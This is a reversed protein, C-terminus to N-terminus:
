DELAVTASSSDDAKKKRRKTPGEVADTDSYQESSETGSTSEVVFSDDDSEDETEELDDVSAELPKRTSTSATDTVFKQFKFRAYYPVNKIDGGYEKEFFRRDAKDEAEHVGLKKRPARKTPAKAQSTSAVAMTTTSTSAIAENMTSTSAFQTAMEVAMRTAISIAMAQVAENGADLKRKTLSTTFSVPATLNVQPATVVQSTTATVASKPASAVATSASTTAKQVQVVEKKEKDDPADAHVFPTPGGNAAILEAVPLGPHNDPAQIMAKYVDQEPVTGILKKFVKSLVRTDGAATHAGDEPIDWGYRMAQLTRPKPIGMVNCQAVVLTCRFIWDSPITLGTRDTELKLMAKDFRVNHAILLIIPKVSTTVGNKIVKVPQEVWQVFQQFVPRFTPKGKVMNDDIHNIATAGPPIPMEPDILTGFEEDRDPDYAGFEVVRPPPIAELLGTTETDFFIVRIVNDIKAATTAVKSPKPAAAKIVAASAKIPNPDLMAPYVTELPVGKVLVNMIGYIELGTVRGTVPIKVKECVETASLGKWDQTEYFCNALFSPDFLKWERPFERNSRTCDNRLVHKHFEYARYAVLVVTSKSGQPEIWARFQNWVDAFTDTVKQIQENTIGFEKERAETIAAGPNVLRAFTRTAEPKTPCYAEISTVRPSVSGEKGEKFIDHTGIEFFVPTITAAVSNTATM